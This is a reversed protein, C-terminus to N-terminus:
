KSATTRVCVALGHECAGRIASGSRAASHRRTFEILTELGLVLLRNKAGVRIAPCLGGGGGQSVTEKRPEGPHNM